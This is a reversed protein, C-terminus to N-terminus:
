SLVNLSSPPLLRRVFADVAGQEAPAAIIVLRSGDAPADGAAPQSAAQCSVGGASVDAYVLGATTLVFGKARYVHGQLARLEATLQDRDVPRSLNVTRTAYNPDACAAYEGAPRDRWPEAGGFLDLDAQCYQTRTIVAAPNIQRVKNEAQEIQEGSYLDTKNIVVLDSAEVQAVINPLTELLGLFSGPDVLTVVRRLEFLEDLKTEELMRAVVKPNAIGSAEVIVIPDLAPNPDSNLHDAAQQLVRIFESVLCSCFISGGPITVLQGPPLDVLQGDVDVSGFDNVICVIRRSRGQEVLRRLLTTKGSGLFGTILLLPLM